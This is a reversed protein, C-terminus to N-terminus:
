EKKLIILTIEPPMWLRFPVSLVGMGRNVYLHQDDINYLGSWHPYFHKSPSWKFNQTYIGMQMGHTHGSLTLDIDTKGAVALEWHNPDHSLLIQFDISDLDMLAKDLDGHIINPYRGMTTVGALGIKAGNYDIIDHEDNLVRYGSSRILNNILLVNDERDADTFFPHYTGFDHNGAVAYTGYKGKVKSLITDFGTFERWGFTVFDGTNLLLDPKLDNIKIIQQELAQRHHNFGALHLDSIQVIRLGDLKENLDRIKLEVTETRFNLRGFLTGAAIIIIIGANLSIGTNTLWSIHGGERRKAYKGTFHLISLIARPFIVAVIMGRLQMLDWIHEPSDFSGTHNRVSIYLIWFWLSIIVHLIIFLYFLPKLRTYFHQRIATASLIEIILLILVSIM